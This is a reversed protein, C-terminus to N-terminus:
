NDLIPFSDTRGGINRLFSPPEDGRNEVINMAEDLVAFRMDAFELIDYGETDADMDWRQANRVLAGSDSLEAFYGQMLMTVHELTFIEERWQRWLQVMRDAAGGANLAIIRDVMEFARWNDYQEGLKKAADGFASGWSMDMDWPIFQYKMGEPTKKHWIYVNNNSNDMLGAGQMLLAYRAVSEIDICAEAKAAFAADDEEVMLDLYDKMGAFERSGTPEYRLEFGAADYVPSRLMPREGAFRMPLTRYVQDTLLHSDGSKKLETAEDMSEVMLYVGYYVGNLFVEAYNTQRAGFAEQRADGLMQAYITWSIRERVLLEDFVMPNLLVEEKLGFGPLNVTNKKGGAGRTFEIKLNLKEKGKSGKGRQHVNGASIVPEEGYSSVAIEMPVDVDGIEEGCEIMVLPLGTFVIEAYSFAEDTYALIQYAYGERIADACGDYTYDDVFVLETDKAGPATLHLAPWGDGNELGLTCYFVNNERDYALPMDQNFLSTVLPTESERRADEIAWIEEISEPCPQVVPAYPSGIVIVAGLFVAMALM